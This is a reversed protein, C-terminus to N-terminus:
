LLGTMFGIRILAVINIKQQFQRTNQEDWKHAVPHLVSVIQMVVYPYTTFDRVTIKTFQVKLVSPSTFPLPTHYLLNVLLRRFLQIFGFTLLIHASLIVLHALPLFTTAHPSLYLPTHSFVVPCIPWRSRQSSLKVHELHLSCPAFESHLAGEQSICCM